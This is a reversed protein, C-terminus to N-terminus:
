EIPVTESRAAQGQTAKDHAQIFERLRAELSPADGLLQMAMPYLVREEKLNHQRIMITLTQMLADFEDADRDRVAERLSRMLEHMVSHETSMMRAPALSGGAREEMAPFLLEEECALHLTLADAFRELATATMGWHQALVAEQAQELLADCRRHDQTLFAEISM